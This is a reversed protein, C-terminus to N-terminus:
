MQINYETHSMHMQLVEADRSRM